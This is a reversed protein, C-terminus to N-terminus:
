RWGKTVRRRLYALYTYGFLSVMFVALGAFTYGVPTRLIATTFSLGLSGMMIVNLVDFARRSIDSNVAIVLSLYDQGLNFATDYLAEIRESLSDARQFLGDLNLREEVNESVLRVERIGSQRLIGHRRRVDFLRLTRLRVDLNSSILDRIESQNMPRGKSVFDKLSVLKAGLRDAESQMTDIMKQVSERTQLSYDLVESYLKVEWEQMEPVVMVSARETASALANAELTGQFLNSEPTAEGPSPQLTNTETDSFLGRMYSYEGGGLQSVPVSPLYDYVQLITFSDLLSVKKEGGAYEALGELVRKTVDRLRGDAVAFRLNQIDSSLSSEYTPVAESNFIKLLHLFFADVQKTLKLTYEVEVVYEPHFRVKVEVPPLELGGPHALSLAGVTSEFIRLDEGGTRTIFESPYTPRVSGLKSLIREFTAEELLAYDKWHVETFRSYFMKQTRWGEGDVIYTRADHQGLANTIRAFDKEATRLCAEASAFEKAGEDSRDETLRLYGAMNHSQGLALNRWGDSYEKLSDDNSGPGVLDIAQASAKFSDSARGYAKRSEEFECLTWAAEGQQLYLHGEIIQKFWSYVQTESPQPEVKALSELAKRYCGLTEQYDWSTEINHRGQLFLKLARRTSDEETLASIGVQMLNVDDTLVYSKSLSELSGQSTQM